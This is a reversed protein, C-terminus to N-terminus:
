DIYCKFEADSADPWIEPLEPLTDMSGQPVQQRKTASKM